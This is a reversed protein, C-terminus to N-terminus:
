YFRRRYPLSWSRSRFRPAGHYICIGWAIAGFIGTAFLIWFRQWATPELERLLYAFGPSDDGHSEMRVRKFAHEGWLVQELAGETHVVRVGGGAFVASPHGLISDPDLRAGPLKNQIDLLLAENGMPMGTVARAWTVTQGDVSGLIVIIGNKSLADKDFAKSQWYALLAGSYNDPDTVKNPDVIVLHVDGQLETGLAADFRNIAPQWNGPASRGVFYVRDSFYVDHVSSNITPLLNATKYRDISDSFRKLITSQSALIYNNYSQRATVPGPQGSDIRAKAATWFPPVGSAFRDPVPESWRWRHADPNTPLNHDAITFRGVTTDITFTWEENTYPCDHYKTEEEEHEDGNSDKVKHTVTYPDCDYYHHCLGDRECTTVDKNTHLEYGGWNENYTVQNHIAIKTGLWATLPVVVLLLVASAIALEKNDIRYDSERRDLIYKAILGLVMVIIAGEFILSFM